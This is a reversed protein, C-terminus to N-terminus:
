ALTSSATSAATWPRRLLKHLVAGSFAVSAAAASGSLMASALSKREASRQNKGRRAASSGNWQAELRDREDEGIVGAPSVVADPIARNEFKAQKFATYDSLVSVGEFCARLPSLGATYPNRPDPYRFHIVEDPRFRQEKAATRYEYYDVLRRSGPERRPTVNQTPLVWIEDPVGLGNFILLWYASGHVEQYLTTLEWLDFQSLVGNVQQLLALLPHDLVAELRAAKTVHAALGPARRLRRETLRDLPRTLCKPPPQGPDTRAYLRPPYSACVAANISACTFATNKLEALLENPTPERERRFADIFHTGTWQGGTLVAPAAKPRVLRALATLTDALLTRM